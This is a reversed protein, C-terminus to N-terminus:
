DHDINFNDNEKEITFTKHKELFSRYKNYVQESVKKGNVTLEGNKHKISYDEKKNLLGDKELGDVFDKYEKIEAKAKEIGEKAKEMQKELQPGLDKLKENVRKLEEEMKVMDIKKVEEMKEKMKDWDIKAISQELELKVKEMDVEKLAKEMEMKIKPMEIQEIEKMAKALEKQVKEMEIKLDVNDLERLADDLDRIKKEKPITDNQETSQGFKNNPQKYDWSVLVIVAAALFLLVFSFKRITPMKSKM